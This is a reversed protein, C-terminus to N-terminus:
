FKKVNKAVKQVFKLHKLYNTGTKQLKKFRNVGTKSLKPHNESPSEENKYTKGM